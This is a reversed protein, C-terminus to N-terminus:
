QPSVAMAGPNTGDSGHGSDGGIDINQARERAYRITKAPLITRTGVAPFRLPNLLCGSPPQRWQFAELSFSEPQPRRV